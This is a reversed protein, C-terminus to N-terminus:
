TCKTQAKFFYLIGLNYYCSFIDFHIEPKTFKIQSNFSDSWTLNFNEVTNGYEPNWNFHKAILRSYRVYM